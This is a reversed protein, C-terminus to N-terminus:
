YRTKHYKHLSWTTSQTVESPRRQYSSQLCQCRREHCSTTVFGKGWAPPSQGRCQLGLNLKNCFREIPPSPYNSVGASVTLAQNMRTAGPSSFSGSVSQFIQCENLGETYFSFSLVSDCISPASFLPTFILQRELKLIDQCWIHLCQKVEWAIWASVHGETKTAAISRM